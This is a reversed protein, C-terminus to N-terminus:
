TRPQHLSSSKDSAPQRAIIGGDRASKEGVFYFLLASSSFTASHLKRNCERLPHAARPKGPRRHQGPGTQPLPQTVSWTKMGGHSGTAVLAPLLHHLFSLM